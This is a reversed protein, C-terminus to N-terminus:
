GDFFNWFADPENDQTVVEVKCSLSFQELFQKGQDAGFEEEEEDDPLSAESGIWVYVTKPENEKPKLVYVKDDYLDDVDFTGLAEWQESDENFEYLEGPTYANAVTEQKTVTEENAPAPPTKLVPKELFVLDKYEKNADSLKTNIEKQSLLEKFNQMEQTDEGEKVIVVPTSSNAHYNKLIKVFDEATQHISEPSKEGIWIYLIDKVKGGYLVFCTRTDINKSNCVKPYVEGFEAYRDNVPALRFLVVPNDKIMKEWEILQVIFGANPSCVERKAKVSELVVNHPLKKKWMFYSIVMTSSRSVGEYCHVYVRGGSHFAKEIFDIVYFFVGIISEEGSDYLSMALYQFDDPFYVGCAVRAANIIHTIKHRQLEEKNRAIADSGLYLGNVIKSCKHRFYQIKQAAGWQPNAPM